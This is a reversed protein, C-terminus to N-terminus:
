GDRVVITSISDARKPTDVKTATTAAWDALVVTECDIGGVAVALKLGPL